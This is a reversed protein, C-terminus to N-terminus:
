TRSIYIISAGIELAMQAMRSPSSIQSQVVRLSRSVVGQLQKRIRQLYNEREGHFGMSSFPFCGLVLATVIVLVLVILIVIVLKFM